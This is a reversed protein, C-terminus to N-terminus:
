WCRHSITPSSKVPSIRINVVYDALLIDVISQHLSVFIRREAPIEEGEYAHSCHADKNAFLLNRMNMEWAEVLERETVGDMEWPITEDQGKSDTGDEEDWNADNHGDGVLMATDIQDALENASGDEGAAGDCVHDEHGVSVNRRSM